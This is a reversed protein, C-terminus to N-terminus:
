AYSERVCKRCVCPKLQVSIKPNRAITGCDCQWLTPFEYLSSTEASQKSGLFKCRSIEQKMNRLTQLVIASSFANCSRPIFTCPVSLRRRCRRLHALLKVVFIFFHFISRRRRRRRQQDCSIESSSSERHINPISVLPKSVGPSSFM